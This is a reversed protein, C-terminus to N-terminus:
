HSKKFFQHHSVKKPAVRYTTTLMCLTVTSQQTHIDDRNTLTADNTKTTNDGQFLYM